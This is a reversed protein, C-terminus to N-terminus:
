SGRGVVALSHHGSGRDEGGQQQGAVATTMKNGCLCLRWIIIVDTVVPYPHNDNDDCCTAGDREDKDVATRGAKDVVAVGNGDWWWGQDLVVFVSAGSSSSMLLLPRPITTTMTSTTTTAALATATAMGGNNIVAVM